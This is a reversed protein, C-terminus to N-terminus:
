HPYDHCTSMRFVSLATYRSISHHRGLQIINISHTSDTHAGTKVKPMNDPVFFLTCIRNRWTNVMGSGRFYWINPVQQLGTPTSNAGVPTLKSGTDDCHNKKSM